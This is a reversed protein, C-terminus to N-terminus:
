ETACTYAGPMSANRDIITIEQLMAADAENGRLADLLPLFSFSTRSDSFRPVEIHHAIGNIIGSGRDGDDAILVATSPDIYPGTNETMSRANILHVMVRLDKAGLVTDGAFPLPRRFFRGCLADYCGSLKWAHMYDEFEDDGIADSHVVIRKGRQRAESLFERAGARPTLEEPYTFADSEIMKSSAALYLALGSLAVGRVSVTKKLDIWPPILTDFVDILYVGSNRLITQLKQQHNNVSETIHEDVSFWSLQRGKPERVEIRREM